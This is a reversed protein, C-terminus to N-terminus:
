VLVPVASIFGASATILVGWLGPGPGPGQPRPSHAPWYPSSSLVGAFSRIAVVVRHSEAVASSNEKALFVLRGGETMGMKIGRNQRIEKSIDRVGAGALSTGM